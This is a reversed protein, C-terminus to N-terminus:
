PWFGGQLAPFSWTSANGTDGPIFPSSSFVHVKHPSGLKRRESSLIGAVERGFRNIGALSVSFSSANPRPAWSCSYAIAGCVGTASPAPARPSPLTGQVVVPAKFDPVGSAPLPRRAQYEGTSGCYSPGAAAGHVGDNPRGRIRLSRFRAAAQRSMSFRVVFRFTHTDGPGCTSRWQPGLCQTGFRACRFNLSANIEQRSSGTHFESSARSRNASCGM